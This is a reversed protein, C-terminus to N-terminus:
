TSRGHRRRVAVASGSELEGDGDRDDPGHREDAPDVVSTRDHDCDPCDVTTV